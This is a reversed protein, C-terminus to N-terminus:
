RGGVATLGVGARPLAVRNHITVAFADGRYSDISWELPSGDPDFVRRRVELLPARRPMGLLTAQEASAAIAAISQHAEAFVVGLEALQAYVSANDLDCDLLLRGVPEVFTSLEIMAPAGDLLRLRRYQFAVAGPELGLQLASEPDAPRRALELTRAGPVRGLREAWASFSIMQNFSQALTPRAVVPRRGRGGSILGEARLAALAQRVTGRSVSFRVSLEAESPLASGPSVAGSHIQERLTSAIAAHRSRPADAEPM